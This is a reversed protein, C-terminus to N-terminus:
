IGDQVEPLEAEVPVVPENNSSTNANSASAASLDQYMDVDGEIVYSNVPSEHIPESEEHTKSQEVQHVKPKSKGM